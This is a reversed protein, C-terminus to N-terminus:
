PQRPAGSNNASRNQWWNTLRAAPGRIFLYPIFALTLAVIIAEGVHFRGDVKFQYIADMILGLLLIRSTAILGERLRAHREAPNRLVTWFYPSRGTRADKIGDRIGLLTAMIPQLIFRFSLPGAPRAALDGWLRSLLDAVDATISM